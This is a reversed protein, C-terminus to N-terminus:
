SLALTYSYYFQEHSSYAPYLPPIPTHSTTQMWSQYTIAFSGSGTTDYSISVTGGATAFNPIITDVTGTPTAYILHLNNASSPDGPENITAVVGPAIFNLRILEDVQQPAPIFTVQFVGTANFNAPLGTTDDVVNYAASGRANTQVVTVNPQLSWNGTLAESHDHNASVTLGASSATTSANDSILSTVSTTANATAGTFPNQVNLVQNANQLASLNTGVWAVPETNRPGTWAKVGQFLGNRLMVPATLSRAELADSRGADLSPVFGVDRRARRRKALISLM